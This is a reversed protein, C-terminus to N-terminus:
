MGGVDRGRCAVLSPNKELFLETSHTDLSISSFLLFLALVHKAKRGGERTGAEDCEEEM